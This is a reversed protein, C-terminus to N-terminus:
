RGTYVIHLHYGTAKSTQVSNKIANCTSNGFVENIFDIGQITKVQTCLQGWRPDSGNAVPSGSIFLAIDACAGSQPFGKKHCKSQHDGDMTSTIRWTIGLSDTKTKLQILRDSLDKCITKSAPKKSFVAPISIVGGPCSAAAFTKTPQRGSGTADPVIVDNDSNFKELQVVDIGPEVVLLDPNITRLIITIGLLLMLGLVVNTIKKKVVEFNGVNQDNAAYQFGYIVLMVVGLVGAIGIGLEMIFNIFGGIGGESGTANVDVYDFDKTPDATPLPELLQYCDKTTDTPDCPPLISNSPVSNPNQAFVSVFPTLLIFGIVFLFIKHKMHYLFYLM